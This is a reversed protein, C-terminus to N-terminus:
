SEVTWHNPQPPSTAIPSLEPGAKWPRLRKTYFTETSPSSVIVYKSPYLNCHPFQSAGDNKPIQEPHRIPKGERLSDLETMIYRSRNVFDWVHYLGKPPTPPTWSPHTELANVLEGLKAIIDDRVAPSPLATM